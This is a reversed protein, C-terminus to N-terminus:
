ATEGQWLMGPEGYWYGNCVGQTLYEASRLEAEPVSMRGDLVARFLEVLERMGSAQPSLRLVDVDLARLEDVACLLNSTGGSQVQIGNLTFLREGERTNMALGDAYDGCRLQCDDKPLNHARATFCRASFALPLRGFAFVETELGAPRAQQLQALTTRSLEVPLVWRRAGLDALLELTAANYSNIHPGAVFPVRGALLQVAGFDNAEVWFRGNDAIRQLSSLESEAEFLALSSLVVQKGAASLREAIALWDVLRLLRRKSCVTEGLYVCDVPWFEASAYFSLVAERSWFYLIPGLALKM